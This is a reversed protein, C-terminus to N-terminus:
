HRQLEPSNKLGNFKPSKLASNRLIFANTILVSDHSRLFCDQIQYIQYIVGVGRLINRKRIELKLLLFENYNMQFICTLRVLFACDIRLQM